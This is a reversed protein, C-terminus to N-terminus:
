FSFAEQFQDISEFNKEFVNKQLCFFGENLVKNPYKPGEPKTLIKIIITPVNQCLKTWIPSFQVSKLLNENKKKFIKESFKYFDIM